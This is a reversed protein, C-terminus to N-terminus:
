REPTEANSLFVEADTADMRIFGHKASDGPKWNPQFSATGTFVTTTAPTEDRPVALTLTWDVAHDPADPPATEEFHLGYASANERLLRVAAGRKVGSQILAPLSRHLVGHTEVEALCTLLFAEQKRTLRADDMVGYTLTIIAIVERPM